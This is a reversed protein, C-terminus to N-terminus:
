LTAVWAESAEKMTARAERRIDKSLYYTQSQGIAEALRYLRKFAAKQQETM